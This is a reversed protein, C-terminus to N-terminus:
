FKSDNHQRTQRVYLGPEHMTGHNCNQTEDTQKRTGSRALTCESRGNSDGCPSNQIKVQLGTKIWRGSICQVGQRLARDQLYSDQIGDIRARIAVASLKVARQRSGEEQFPLYNNTGIRFDSAQKHKQSAAVM